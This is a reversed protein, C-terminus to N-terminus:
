DVDASEVIIELEESTPLEEGCESCLYTSTVNEPKNWVWIGRAEDWRLATKEDVYISESEKGCHPCKIKNPILGEMKLYQRDTM